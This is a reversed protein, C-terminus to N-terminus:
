ATQAEEHVSTDIIEFRGKIRRGGSISAVYHLNPLKGLMDAPIAEELTESIQTSYASSFDGLHADANQSLGV